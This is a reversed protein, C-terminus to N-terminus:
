AALKEPEPLIVVVFASDEADLDGSVFVLDGHEKRFVLMHLNSNEEQM